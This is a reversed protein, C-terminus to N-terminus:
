PRLEQEFAQGVEVPRQALAAAAQDDAVTGRLARECREGLLDLGLLEM